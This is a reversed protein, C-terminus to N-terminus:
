SAVTRYASWVLLPLGLLNFSAHLLATMAFAFAASRREVFLVYCAALVAGTVFPPVSVWGWPHVRVMLLGSLGSCRLRPRLM